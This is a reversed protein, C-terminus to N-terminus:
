VRLHDAGLGVDERNSTHYIEKDGEVSSVIVLGVDEILSVDGVLLEM